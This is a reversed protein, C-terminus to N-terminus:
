EYKRDDTHTRGPDHGFPKDWIQAVEEESIMSAADWVREAARAEVAPDYDWEPKYDWADIERGDALGVRAVCAALRRIQAVDYESLADIIEVLAGGPSTFHHVSDLLALDDEGLESNQVRVTLACPRKPFRIHIICFTRNVEARSRERRLSAM